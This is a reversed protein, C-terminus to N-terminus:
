GRCRTMGCCRGGGGHVRRRVLDPVLLSARHIWIRYIWSTTCPVVGLWLVAAMVLRAVFPLYECIAKRLCRALVQGTPIHAPADEAYV